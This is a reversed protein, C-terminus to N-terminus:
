SAAGGAPTWIIRQLTATALTGDDPLGDPSVYGPIAFVLTVNPAARSRCIPMGFWNGGGERCDARSLRAEAFSMGIREGAPGRLRASVGHVAGIGGGAGPLVQLVQLGDKFLALASATQTETAMTISSADYGPLAAEVAAESYRVSGDLGPVGAAGITFLDGGAPAAADAFDGSSGACGSILLAAFLAALLAPRTRSSVPDMM